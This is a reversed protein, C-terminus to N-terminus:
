NRYIYDTELSNTTIRIHDGDKLKLIENVSIIIYYFGKVNKVEVIAEPFVTIYTFLQERYILIDNM